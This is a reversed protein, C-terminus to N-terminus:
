PAVDITVYSEGSPNAIGVGLRHWHPDLLVDHNAGGPGEALMGALVADIQDRVPGAAVGQPDSQGEACSPCDVASALIHRHPQHDRSLQKSGAQAFASLAYDLVLPGLGADTRAHNIYKAAYERAEDLTMDTGAYCAWVPCGDDHETGHYASRAAAKEREIEITAAGAMAASAIADATKSGTGEVLCACLLSGATVVLLTQRYGPPRSRAEWM